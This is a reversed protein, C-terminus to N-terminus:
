VTSAITEAASYMSALDCYLRVITGALARPFAPDIRCAVAEFPLLITILQLEITARSIMRAATAADPDQKAIRCALENIAAAGIWVQWVGRMGGIASWLETKDMYKASKHVGAFPRLRAVIDPRLRREPRYSLALKVTIAASGIVCAFILFSIV